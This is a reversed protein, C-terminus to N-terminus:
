LRSPDLGLKTRTELVLSNTESAFQIDDRRCLSSCHLREGLEVKTHRLFRSTSLLKSEGVDKRSRQFRYIYISELENCFLNLLRLRILHVMVVKNLAWRIKLFILM